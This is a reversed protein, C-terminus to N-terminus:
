KVNASVLLAALGMVKPKEVIVFTTKFATFNAVSLDALTGVLGGTGVAVETGVAAALAGTMAETTVFEETDIVPKGKVFEGVAVTYNKDDFNHPVLPDIENAVFVVKGTANAAPRAYANNAFDDNLFAGIKVASAGTLKKSIYEQGVLHKVNGAM